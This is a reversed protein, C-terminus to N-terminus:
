ATLKALPITDAWRFAGVQNQHIGDVTYQPDLWGDPTAPASLCDGIDILRGLAGYYSRLWENMTKRRPAFATAWGYSWAAPNQTFAQTTMFMVPVGLARLRDELRLFAWVHVKLWDAESSYAGLDNNGICVLVLDPRVASGAVQKPIWTEGAETTGSPYAIASGVVGINRVTYGPDIAQLRDGLRKPWPWIDRVGAVNSDGACWINKAM